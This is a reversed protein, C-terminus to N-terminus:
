NDTSYMVITNEDLGLEKLKNLLLGVDNDHQLMGDPYVGLGTKGEWKPSLRRRIPLYRRSELRCISDTQRGDWRWAPQFGAFSKSRTPTLRLL